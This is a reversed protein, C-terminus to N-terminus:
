FHQSEKFINALTVVTEKGNKLRMVLHDGVAKALLPPVANGIQTYQPCAHRRRDGGTTRPGLFVFTDPFSQLRAMERVTLIRDLKYHVYDDPLTTVTRAPKNGDFRYLVMKKTRFKRPLDDGTQGPKLQSFREVVRETHKPAEHNHLADSGKRMLRQYESMAPLEYRNTAEGAELFSLDDIAEKVTVPKKTTTVPHLPSFNTLSGIIFVRERSQPVGFDVANLVKIEVKYGIKEFARKISAIVRGGDMTLIGKVNEMVFLPPKIADVVRVLQKFLMNRPDNIDRRGAMSFGQCPPGAAILHIQKGKIDALIREMPVNCIDEVVMKTSHDNRNMFNYNYTEAADANIENAWVANFGAMEMGTTLGGCGAFLDIMNFRQEM